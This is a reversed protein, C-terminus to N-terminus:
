IGGELKFVVIEAMLEQFTRASFDKVHRPYPLIFRGVWNHDSPSKAFISNAARDLCCNYRSAVYLRPEPAEYLTYRGETMRWMDNTDSRGYTKVLRPM